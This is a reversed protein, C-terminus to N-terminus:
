WEVQMMRRRAGQFKGKINSLEAEKKVITTESCKSAKLDKLKQSIKETAEKEEADFDIADEDVPQM